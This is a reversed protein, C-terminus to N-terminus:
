EVVVVDLGSEGPTISLEKHISYRLANPENALADRAM